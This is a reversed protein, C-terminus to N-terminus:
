YSICSIDDHFLFQRDKGRQQAAQAEAGAGAPLGLGYVQGFCGRGGRRRGHRRHREGRGGGHRLGVLTREDLAEAAQPLRIQAILGPEAGNRIEVVVTPELYQRRGQLARAEIGPDVAILDVVAECVEIVARVIRLLALGPRVDELFAEGGVMVGGGPAIGVHALVEQAVARGVVPGAEHAEAEGVAVDLDALDGGHVLHVAILVIGDFVIVVLVIGFGGLRGIEACLLANKGSLLLPGEGKGPCLELGRARGGRDHRGPGLDGRLGLRVAGDGDGLVGRALRQEDAALGPEDSM